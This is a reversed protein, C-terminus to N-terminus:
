VCNDVVYSYAHVISDAEELTYENEVAQFTIFLYDGDGEEGLDSM